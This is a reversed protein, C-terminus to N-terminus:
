LPLGKKGNFLPVNGRLSGLLSCKVDITLGYMKMVDLGLICCNEIDALIFKGEM